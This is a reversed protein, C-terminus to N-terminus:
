DDFGGASLAIINELLEGSLENAPATMREVSKFGELDASSTPIALYKSALVGLSPFNLENQRWYRLVDSDEGIIPERLYRLVETAVAADESSESPQKLIKAFVSSFSGNTKATDVPESKERVVNKAILILHDKYMDYDKDDCWRLKFRPDLTTSTTYITARTSREEVFDTRELFSQHLGRLLTSTPHKVELEALTQILLRHYPVVLSGSCTTAGATMFNAVVDQFPKLMDLVNRLEIMEAADLLCHESNLENRAEESRIIVFDLLKLQDHWQTAQTADDTRDLASTFLLKSAKTILQRIHSQADGQLVRAIVNGLEHTFCHNYVTSEDHADFVPMGESGLFGPLFQKHSLNCIVRELAAPQFEAYEQQFTAMFSMQDFVENDQMEKCLVMMHNYSWDRIYHVSITAYHKGNRFPGWWEQSLCFSAIWRLKEKVCQTQETSKQQIIDKLEEASSIPCDRAIRATRIMNKFSSSDIVEM